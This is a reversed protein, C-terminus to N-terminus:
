KNIYDKIDKVYNNVFSMNYFNERNKVRRNKLLLFLSRIDNKVLNDLVDHMKKVRTVFDLETDYYKHDIYDDYTDVGMDKLTSMLGANGLMLFLQECAIPKWTKETIFKCHTNATTEAIINLYSDVFMPLVLGFDVSNYPNRFYKTYTDNKWALEEETTLVYEDPRTILGRNGQMSICCESFYSKKKLKLYHHIKHPRPNGNACSILYTRDDSLKHKYMCFYENSWFYWYPFYFIEKSSQHDSPDNTLIIFNNFNISKLYEVVQISNGNGWNESSFNILTTRDKNVSPAVLSDLRWEVEGYVDNIYDLDSGFITKLLPKDIM